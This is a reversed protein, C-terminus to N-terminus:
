EIHRDLSQFITQSPPSPGSQGQGLESLLEHRVQPEEGVQLSGSYTQRTEAVLDAVTAPPVEKSALFVLHTYVPLKPRTRAFVMGAERATTHHAMIRQIYAETM